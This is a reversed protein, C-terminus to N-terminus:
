KKTWRYYNKENNKTVSNIQLQINIKDNLQM